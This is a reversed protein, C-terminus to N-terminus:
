EGSLRRRSSSPSSVPTVPLRESQCTRPRAKASSSRAALKSKAASTARASSCSAPRRSSRRAAAGSASTSRAAEGGFQPPCLSPPPMRLGVSECAALRVRRQRPPRCSNSTSGDSSSLLLDHALRAVVPQVSPSALLAPERAATVAHLPFDATTDAKCPKEGSGRGRRSPRNRETRFSEHANRSCLPKRPPTIDGLGGLQDSARRRSNQWTGTLRSTRVGSDAYFRSHWRGEM